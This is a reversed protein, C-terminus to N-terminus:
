LHPHLLLWGYCCAFANMSSINLIGGSKQEAMIKGFMWSPLITEILKLGFAEPTADTAFYAPKSMVFSVGAM